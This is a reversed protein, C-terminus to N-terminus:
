QPCEPPDTAGPPPTRPGIWIPGAHIGKSALAEIHLQRQFELITRWGIMRQALWKPDRPLLDLDALAENRLSTTTVKGRRTRAPAPAPAPAAIRAAGPRAKAKEKEEAKIAQMAMKKARKQPSGAMRGRYGVRAGRDLRGSQWRGGSLTGCGAVMGVDTGIAGRGGGGLRPTTTSLYLRLAAGHAGRPSQDHSAAPVPAAARSLRPTSSVPATTSTNM